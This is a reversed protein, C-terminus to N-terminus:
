EDFFLDEKLKDIRTLAYIVNKGDGGVEELYVRYYNLALTKNSNFEEYTTAIEFLVEKKDPNLEHSKELAAISEKFKRQQGLIQGLHHYMEAVYNPTSGEIAWQMLEESKEYDKMKKYCLSQYYMVLPDNPNQQQLKNFRDLAKKEYEAFYTSIAINMLMEYSPDKEVELYKEFNVMAPGYRKTKYLYMARELLLESSHPFLELGKGITEMIKNGEKKWNYTHILNSYTGLDRPNAELVKEYLHSAQERKFTRFACYALQKNWYVNSSDQAYINSFAEYASKYDKLNIYVRGLKATLALNQPSLNHAQKYFNIADTNNGLISFCEAAQVLLEVNDPDMQLGTTYAELAKQYEQLSQYVMGKKKYLEVTPTTAFQREIELLAQNYEKNLILLDIKQQSIAVFPLLIIICCILSLRYKM